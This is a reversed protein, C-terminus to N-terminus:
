SIPSLGKVQSSQQTRSPAFARPYALQFCLECLKREEVDSLIFTNWYRYEYFSSTFHIFIICHTFDM